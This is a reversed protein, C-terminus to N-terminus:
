DDISRVSRTVRVVEVEPRTWAWREVADCVSAVQEATGSVTAVGVTTRRWLEQADTEAAAVDFRRRLEALLPRVVARKHKLSGVDGLLLDLQVAGVFM